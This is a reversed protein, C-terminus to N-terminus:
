RGGAATAYNGARTYSSSSKFFQSSSHNIHITLARSLSMPASLGGPWLDMQLQGRDGL